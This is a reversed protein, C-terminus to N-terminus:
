SLPSCLPLRLFCARDAQRDTQRTHTGATSSPPPRLFCTRDTQRDTQGDAQTRGDIRDARHGRGLWPGKLGGEQRAETSVEGERAGQAEEGGPRRLYRHHHCPLSFAGLRSCLAGLSRSRGMMTRMQRGIPRDIRGHNWRFHPWNVPVTIVGM